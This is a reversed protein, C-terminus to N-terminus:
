PRAICASEALEPQAQEKLDPVRARKWYELLNTRELRNCVRQLSNFQLKTAYRSATLGPTITYAVFHATFYVDDPAQINPLVRYILWSAM